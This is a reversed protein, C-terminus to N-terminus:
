LHVVYLSKSRRKLTSGFDMNIPSEEVFGILLPRELKVLATAMSANNFFGQAFARQGGVERDLVFALDAFADQEESGQNLQAAYWTAFTQPQASSVAVQSVQGPALDFVDSMGAASLYVAKTITKDGLNKITLRAAAGPPEVALLPTKIESVSRVQFLRSTWTTLPVRLAFQKPERFSELIDVASASSAQGGDMLENVYSDPGDFTIRRTGKSTPMILLGGMVRKIGDPQHLEVLSADTGIPTGGRSLQAVTVSIGTFLLVVAPITVWALDLKKKWRLVVYNIPGVVLLYALLFLLFYTPSPPEIEALRFLFNQVGWQNSTSNGRRGVTVWNNGATPRKEAAPLLLDTWLIKAGGWGRYPSLKPNFAVFRVLGTGYYREAVIPRDQSGVIARAGTRSRGAMVLLPDSSEFRGYLTSLEPLAAEAQAGEFEVPMIADIGTAHLGAVDAGGTVILLGGSAVWWKLARAQDETLQSLPADGIVVADLPDYSVFDRPLEEPQIVIPHAILNQQGAGPWGRRRRGPPTPSPSPSPQAAAQPSSQATAQAAQAGAASQQGPQAAPQQPAITFPERNPYRIIEASTINNLATTDTDVVAIELQDARNYFKDVAVAAQAVVGDDSIISVTPNNHRALIFAPIEHLQQSGTPLQIEKVYEHTQPTPNGDTETRVVIRGAIPPGQNSVAIRFPVWNGDYSNVGFGGFGARAILEIDSSRFIGTASAAGDQSDAGDQSLARPAVLLLAGILLALPLAFWKSDRKLM